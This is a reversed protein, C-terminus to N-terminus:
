ERCDIAGESIAIAVAQARTKAGLKWLATRVHARVTHPSLYLAEAAQDTQRGAALQALVERERETLRGTRHATRRPEIAIVRAGGFGQM